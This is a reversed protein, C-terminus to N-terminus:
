VIRKTPLTLHTYSVAIVIAALITLPMLGFLENFFLLSFVIVIACILSSVPTKANSFYNVSSRSFSGAVPYAGTIGAGFNAVSLAILEQQADITTKERTALSTAISFSEIYIVLAIIFSAPFISIWLKLDIEPILFVPLGQPIQGVTKLSKLDGFYYVFFIAGSILIAPGLGALLPASLSKSQQPNAEEKTLAWRYIILFSIATLGLLLSIWDLQYGQGTLIQFFGIASLDSSIETGILTPIQSIIILRDRICM